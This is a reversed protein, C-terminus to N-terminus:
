LNFIGGSRFADCSTDISIGEFWKRKTNESMILGTNNEFSELFIPQSMSKTGIMVCYKKYVKFLENVNLQYEDQRQCCELFFNQILNSKLVYKDIDAQVQAPIMLGNEQYDKIGQILRNMIGSKEAPLKFKLKKDIKNEPITVDFKFIVIRRTMAFDSTDMVPMHNTTIFPTFEPFFEFFEKNFFRVTLADGGAVKKFMGSEIISGQSTENTFTAQKGVLRALDNPIHGNAKLMWSSADVNSSLDGMIDDIVNVLVSKGNSGKGVLFFVKQEIGKAVFASGFMRM